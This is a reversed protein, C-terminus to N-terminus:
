PALPALLRSPEPVFEAIVPNSAISQGGTCDANSYAIGSITVLPSAAVVVESTVLAEQGSAVQYCGPQMQGLNDTVNVSETALITPDVAAAVIRFQFRGDPPLPVTGTINGAGDTFTITGALAPTTFLLLAILLARNM